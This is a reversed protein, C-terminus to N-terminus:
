SSKADVCDCAIGNIGEMYKCKNGNNSVTGGDCKCSDNVKKCGDYKLICGCSMTDQKERCKNGYASESGACKCKQGPKMCGDKYDVSGWAGCVNPLTLVVFLMIFVSKLRLLNM